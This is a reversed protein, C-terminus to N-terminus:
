AWSILCIGNNFIIGNEFLLRNCTYIRSTGAVFTDTMQGMVISLVPWGAGHALSFLSGFLICIIDVCTAYRFQLIVFIYLVYMYM